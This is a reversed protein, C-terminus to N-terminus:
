WCASLKIFRHFVNKAAFLNWRSFLRFQEFLDRKVLEIAAPLEEISRYEITKDGFSVRREGKALAAELAGLHAQTYAMLLADLSNTDDQLLHQIEIVKGRSM